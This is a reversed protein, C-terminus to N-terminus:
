LGNSQELAEDPVYIAGMTEAEGEGWGLERGIQAWSLGSMFRQTAAARRFGHPNIREREIQAFANRVHQYLGNATFPEAHTNVIVHLHRAPPGARGKRAPRARDACIHAYREDRLAQARRIAALLPPTLKIVAVRRRLRGKQTDIRLIGAAEDVHTDCLRVLDSRRLGSNLAIEAIASALPPLAAIAALVDARSPPLQVPRTYARGLDETPKCDRPLLGVSRARAYSCLRSVAEMAKDASSPSAAAIEDRWARVAIATEDSAFEEGSLHGWRERVQELWRANAAQTAPALRKWEPSTVWAQVARAVTGTPAKPRRYAAWAALLADVSTEELAEAEARTPAEYRALVAAGRERSAYWYIAWGNALPKAQRHAGKMAGGLGRRSHKSM